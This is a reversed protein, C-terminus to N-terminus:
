VLPLTKEVHHVARLDDLRLQQREDPLAKGFQHGFGISCQLTANHSTGAGVELDYPHFVTCGHEEWLKQLTLIIGQYAPLVSM